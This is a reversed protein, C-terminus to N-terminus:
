VNIEYNNKPYIGRKAPQTVEPRRLAPPDRRARTDGNFYWDFLVSGGHGLAQEPSPDPGTIYGDGSTALATFVASM